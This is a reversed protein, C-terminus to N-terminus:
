SVGDVAFKGGVTYQKVYEVGIGDLIAFGAQELKNPSIKQQAVNMRLLM